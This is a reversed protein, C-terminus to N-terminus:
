IKTVDTSKVLKQAIQVKHLILTFCRITPRLNSQFSNGGFRKDRARTASERQARYPEVRTRPSAPYRSGGLQHFGTPVTLVDEAMAIVEPPFPWVHSSSLM